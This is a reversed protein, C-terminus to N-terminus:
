GIAVHLFPTVKWPTELLHALLAGSPDALVLTTRGQHPVLALPRTTWAPELAERLAYAHALRQLSEPAPEAVVPAMTLLPALAADRVSLSLVYEGETWLPEFQYRSLEQMIQGGASRDGDAARRNRYWLPHLAFSPPPDVSM